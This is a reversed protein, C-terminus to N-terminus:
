LYNGGCKDELESIKENIIDLRVKWLNTKSTQKLSSFQGQALM